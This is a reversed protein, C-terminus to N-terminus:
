ERAIQDMNTEDYSARAFARAAGILIERRREEAKAVDRIRYGRIGVARSAIPERKSKDSAMLEFGAAERSWVTQKLINTRVTPRLGPPQRCRLTAMSRVYTTVPAADPM